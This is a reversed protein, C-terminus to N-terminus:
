PDTKEGHSLIKDVDVYLNGDKDTKIYGKDELQKRIKFYNNPKSIGTMKLMYQTSPSFSGDGRCGLLTLMIKAENGNFLNNIAAFLNTPYMVFNHPKDEKTHFVQPAKQM